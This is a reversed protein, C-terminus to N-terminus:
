SVHSSIKKDPKGIQSTDIPDGRSINMGTVM